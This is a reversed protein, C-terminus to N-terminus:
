KRVNIEGGENKTNFNIIDREIPTWLKHKIILETTKPFSLGEFGLEKRTDIIKKIKKLFKISVRTHTNSKNGNNIRNKNREEWYSKKEEKLEKIKKNIEDIEKNM